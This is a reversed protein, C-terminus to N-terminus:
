IRSDKISEWVRKNLEEMRKFEELTYTIGSASVTAKVPPRSYDFGFIM